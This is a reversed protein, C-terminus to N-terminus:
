GLTHITTTGCFWEYGQLHRISADGVPEGPPDMPFVIDFSILQRTIIADSFLTRAQKPVMWFKHSRFSHLNRFESNDAINFDPLLHHEHSFSHLWDMNQFQIIIRQLSNGRNLCMLYRLTSRTRPQLYLHWHAMFITIGLSVDVISSSAESDEHCPTAGRDGACSLVKNLEEFSPEAKHDYPYFDYEEMFAFAPPEHAYTDMAQLRASLSQLGPSFGVVFEKNVEIGATYVRWAYEDKNQLQAVEGSSPIWRLTPSGTGYDM